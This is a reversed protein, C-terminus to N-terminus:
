QFDNLDRERKKGALICLNQCVSTIACTYEAHVLFELLYPWLVNEMQEITTTVLRLISECMAQISKNSVSDSESSKKQKEEEVNIACQKVIFEVLRQGGELNLYGHHAMAAILQALMQKVKLSTDNVVVQVGTVLIPKKNELYAGSFNVLQKLVSLSGLRGKEGSKDLKLLLFSIIQSYKANSLTM